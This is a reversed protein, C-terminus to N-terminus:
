LVQISQVLREVDDKHKGFYYLRSGFYVILYLKKKLVAGVVFGELELGDKRTTSVEFRFGDATGFKVPRLSRSKLHMEDAVAVSSEIFDKIELPSMKSDFPPLKQDDKATTLTDGDELGKIFRLQQLLPGDVTWLEHKDAADKSWAIQPEVSFADAVAVRKPEVLSYHTCAALFLTIVSLVALRNM